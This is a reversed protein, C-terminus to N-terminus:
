PTRGTVGFPTVIPSGASSARAPRARGNGGGLRRDSSLRGSPEAVLPFGSTHTEGAIVNTASGTPKWGRGRTYSPTPPAIVNGGSLASILAVVQVQLCHHPTSVAVVWSWSSATILGAMAGKRLTESFIASIAADDTEDHLVLIGLSRSSVMSSYRMQLYGLIFLM